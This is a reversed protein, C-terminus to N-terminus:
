HARLFELLAPNVIEAHEWFPVHAADDVPLFVSQPVARRVAESTEFPV